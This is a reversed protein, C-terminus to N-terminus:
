EFAEDDILKILSVCEDEIEVLLTAAPVKLSIAPSDEELHEKREPGLLQRVRRLSDGTKLFPEGDQEVQGSFVLDVDDDTIIAMAFQGEHVLCRPEEFNRRGCLRCYGCFGWEKHELETEQGLFEMLSSRSM